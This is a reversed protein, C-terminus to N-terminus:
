RPEPFGSYPPQSRCRWNALRCGWKPRPSDFENLQISFQISKATPKRTRYFARLWDALEDRIPVFALRLEDIIQDHRALATRVDIAM